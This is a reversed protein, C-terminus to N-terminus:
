AMDCSFQVVGVAPGLFVEDRGVAADTSNASRVGKELLLDDEISAIRRVALVNVYQPHDRKNYCGTSLCPM